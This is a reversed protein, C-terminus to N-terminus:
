FLVLQKSVNSYESKENQLQQKLQVMFFKGAEDTKV